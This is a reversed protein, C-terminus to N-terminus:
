YFFSLFSGNSGHFLLRKEHLMQRFDKHEAERNLSWLNKIIITGKGEIQSSLIHRSIDQFDTSTPDLYTMSNKLAFYKMDAESKKM